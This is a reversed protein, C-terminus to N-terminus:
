LLRGYGLEGRIIFTVFFCVSFTLAFVPLSHWFKGIDLLLEWHWPVLFIKASLWGLIANSVHFFDPLTAGLVIYFFPVKTKLKRNLYRHFWFALIGHSTTVM